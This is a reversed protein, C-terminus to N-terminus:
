HGSPRIAELVRRHVSADIKFPGTGPLRQWLIFFQPEEKVLEKLWQVGEKEYGSMVLFLGHWFRWEKKDPVIQIAQRFLQEATELDGKRLAQGSQGVLAMAEHITLLRELEKLPHPHDDVRLDVVVNRYAPGRPHIRVVKLAASQRCRLDGGHSEAAKLAALMRRALSGQSHEFAPAMSRWVGDNDLLNGQVSYNKGKLNGTAPTARPGTYSAVNGDKDIMAVQRMDAGPDGALLAKLAQPATKGGRMLELGLPGYAIDVYAQTAVVGVGPETWIVTPGVVFYCSQVAVGMENRDRDYAVISYTSVPQQYITLTAHGSDAFCSRPGLIFMVAILSWQLLVPFKKM